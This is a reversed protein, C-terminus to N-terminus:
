IFMTIKSKTNLYLSEHIIKNIWFTDFAKTFDLFVILLELYISYWKGSLESPLFRIFLNKKITLFYTSYYIATELVFISKTSLPHM